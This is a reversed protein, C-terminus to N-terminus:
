WPEIGIEIPSDILNLCKHRGLLNQLNPFEYMIRELSKSKHWPHVILVDTGQDKMIPPPNFEIKVIPINIM